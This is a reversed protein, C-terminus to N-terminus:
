LSVALDDIQMLRFCCVGRERGEELCEGFKGGLDVQIGNLKSLFKERNHHLLQRILTEFLGSSIILALARSKTTQRDTKRCREASVVISM